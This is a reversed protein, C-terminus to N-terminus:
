CTKRCDGSLQTGDDLTSCGIRVMTIHFPLSCLFDSCDVQLIMGNLLHNIVMSLLEGLYPLEGELHGLHSIFLPSGLWKCTRPHDELYPAEFPIELARGQPDTTKTWPDHSENSGNPFM